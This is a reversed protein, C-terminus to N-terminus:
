GTATSEACQLEASLGYAAGKSLASSLWLQLSVLLTSRVLTLAQPPLIPMPAGTPEDPFHVEEPVPPSGYIDASDPEPLHRWQFFETPLPLDLMGPLRAEGLGRGKRMELWEAPIVLVKQSLCGSYHHGMVPISGLGTSM